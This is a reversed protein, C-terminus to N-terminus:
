RHEYAVVLGSPWSVADTVVVAVQYGRGGYHKGDGVTPLPESIQARDTSGDINILRWEAM